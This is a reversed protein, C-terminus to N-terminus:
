LGQSVADLYMKLKDGPNAKQYTDNEELSKILNVEVERAVSEEAPAQAKRLPIEKVVANLDGVMKAIEDKTKSVESLASKVTESQSNVDKAINQLQVIVDKLASLDLTPTEVSKVIQETKVEPEDVIEAAKVIETAPETKVETEESKVDEVTELGGKIDEVSKKTDEPAESYLRSVMASLSRIISKITDKDEGQLSELSGELTKIASTLKDQDKQILGTIAEKVMEKLGEKTFAQTQDRFAKEIYWGLAKAHPNAPITVLSVEYLEMAKIMLVEKKTIEDTLLDFDLIRGRISFKSLTGDKIQNWIKPETKSIACKIFLNTDQAEALAIVGIPRDVDHNFLLTNYKQLSTAGMAIAEKTVINDQTDLDSTSGYGEVIWKGESEGAHKVLTIKGVDLQADFKIANLEDM